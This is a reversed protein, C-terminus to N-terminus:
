ATGHWPRRLNKLHTGLNHVFKSSIRERAWPFISSWFLTTSDEM